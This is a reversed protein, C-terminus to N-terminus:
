NREKIRSPYRHHRCLSSSCGSSPGEILMWFILQVSQGLFISCVWLVKEVQDDLLGEGERAVFINRLASIQTSISPSESTLDFHLAAETQLIAGEALRHPLGTGFATSVGSLFGDTLPASVGATVGARYALRDLTKSIHIHTNKYPKCLTAHQSLFATLPM